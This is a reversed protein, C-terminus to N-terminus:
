KHDETTKIAARLRKRERRFAIQDYTIYGLALVAGAIMQAIVNETTRNKLVNNWNWQM